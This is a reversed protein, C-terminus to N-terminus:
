SFLIYPKQMSKNLCHLYAVLMRAEIRVSIENTGFTSCLIVSHYMTSGDFISPSM